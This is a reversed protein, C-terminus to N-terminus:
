EVEFGIKDSYDVKGNKWFGIYLQWEGAVDLPPLYFTIVSGQKTASVVTANDYPDIVDVAITQYETLDILNGYKDRITVELPSAVSQNLRFKM